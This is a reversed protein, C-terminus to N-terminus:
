WEQQLKHIADAVAQPDRIRPGRGRVIFYERVLEVQRDTMYRQRGHQIVSPVIGRRILRYIANLSRGVRLAVEALPVVGVLVQSREPHLEAQHKRSSDLMRARYEADTHYRRRRKANYEEKREQYWRKFGEDKAM